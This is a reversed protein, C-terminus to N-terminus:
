RDPGPMSCRPWSQLSRIRRAPRTADSGDRRAAAETLVEDLKRTLSRRSFRELARDRVRPSIALSGEAWRAHLSCIADEIASADGPEVVVGADFEEVLRSALNSRNAVCLIPRGAVLYEFIKGSSGQYDDPQFFLLAGASRMEQIADGHPVYGVTTVRYPLSSTPDAGLWVNGVLRVEIDSPDLRGTNVVRAIAEFVPAADRRGYLSGVHTLSFRDRQHAVPADADQLDAEDVGNYIVVRRDDDAPLGALQIPDDVVTVYRAHTVISREMRRNAAALLRPDEQSRSRRGPDRFDAVWPIGRAM